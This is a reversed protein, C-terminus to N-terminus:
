NIANQASASEPYFYASGHDGEIVTISGGKKLVRKLNSLAKVPDPLHELVFCVLIHDFSEDEYNLDFIDGKQFIVNKINMSKALKEAKEISAESIDISTFRCAPNKPAIIKTQSGVGCGAELISTNEPFVTDHHLLEDLSNAQDHLRKMERESYGHVYKNM